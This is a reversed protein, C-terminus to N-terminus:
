LILWLTTFFIRLFTSFGRSLGSLRHYLLFTLPHTGVLNFAPDWASPNLDWLPRESFFNTFGRSLGRLTHYLLPTLLLHNPLEITSCRSLLLRIHPEIGVGVVLFFRLFPISLGCPKHYLIFTTLPSAIGFPLAWTLWYSREGTVWVARHERARYIFTFWHGMPQLLIPNHAICYRWRKRQPPLTM